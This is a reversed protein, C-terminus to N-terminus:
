KGGSNLYDDRCKESCFILHKGDRKLVIGERRPFYVGCLPDKIMVDDVSNDAQGTEQGGGMGKLMSTKLYRYILYVLALIFLVKM